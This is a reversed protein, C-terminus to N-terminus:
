FALAVGAWVMVLSSPEPVTLLEFDRVELAARSGDAEYAGLVTEINFPRGDGPVFGLRFTFSQWDTEFRYDAGPLTPHFVGAPLPFEGGFDDGSGHPPFFYGFFGGNHGGPTASTVNYVFLLYVLSHDSYSVCDDSAEGRSNHADGLTPLQMNAMVKFDDFPLQLLVGPAQDPSARYVVGAGAKGAGAVVFALAVLPASFVIRAPTMPGRRMSLWRLLSRGRGRA